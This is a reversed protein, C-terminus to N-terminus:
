KIIRKKGIREIKKRVVKKIKLFFKKKIFTDWVGDTVKLYREEKKKKM